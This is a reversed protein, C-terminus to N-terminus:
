ETLERCQHSGTGQAKFVSQFQNISTDVAM